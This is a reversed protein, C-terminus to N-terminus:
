KERARVCNKERAKDLTPTNKKYVATDIQVCWKCRSGEIMKQHTFFTKSNGPYHKGRKLERSPVVTARPM